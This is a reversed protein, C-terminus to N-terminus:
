NLQPDTPANALLPYNDGLNIVATRWIDQANNHFVLKSTANGVYWSHESMERELQQYEWGSYGVLLKLDTNKYGGSCLIDLLNEYSGGWYIGDVIHKGGLVEPIKHLIHLTEPQVPGGKYIPLYPVKDQQNTLLQELVIDTAKNLVFGISGQEGHECILLVSKNFYGDSLSPTAILLKGTEPPTELPKSDFKLTDM